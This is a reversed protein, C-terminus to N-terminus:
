ANSQYCDLCVIYARGLSSNEEYDYEIDQTVVCNTSDCDLCKIEFGKNEEM